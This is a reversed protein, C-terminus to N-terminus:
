EEKKDSSSPTAEVGERLNAAAQARAQQIAAIAAERRDNLEKKVRYAAAADDMLTRIEGYIAQNTSKQKTAEHKTAGMYERIVALVDKNHEELKARATEKDYGTQRVIIDCLYDMHREMQSLQTNEQDSM